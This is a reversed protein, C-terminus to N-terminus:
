QSLRHVKSFIKQLYRVRIRDSFLLEPFIGARTFFNRFVLM